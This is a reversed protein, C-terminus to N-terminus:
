VLLHCWPATTNWHKIRGSLSSNARLLCQTINRATGCCLKHNSASRRILINKAGRCTNEYLNQWTQLKITSINASNTGSDDTEEKKPVASAMGSIEPAPSTDVSSSTLCSLLRFRATMVRRNTGIDSWCGPGTLNPLRSRILSNSSCAKSSPLIYTMQSHSESNSDISTGWETSNKLCKERQGQLQELWHWRADTPSAASSLKRLLPACIKSGSIPLLYKQSM